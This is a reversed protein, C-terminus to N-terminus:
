KEFLDALIATKASLTLTDFENELFHELAVRSKPRIEPNVTGLLILSRYLYHVHAEKPRNENPSTLLRDVNSYIHHELNNWVEQDIRLFEFAIKTASYVDHLSPNSRACLDLICERFAHLGWSM